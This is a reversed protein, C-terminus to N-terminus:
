RCLAHIRPRHHLSAGAEDNTDAIIPAIASVVISTM